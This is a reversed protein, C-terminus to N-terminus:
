LVVDVKVRKFAIDVCYTKQPIRSIFFKRQGCNSYMILVFLVFLFVNASAFSNWFYGHTDTYGVIYILIHYDQEEHYLDPSLQSIIM